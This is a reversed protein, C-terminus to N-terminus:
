GRVADAFVSLAVQDLGNFGEQAVKHGALKNAFHVMLQSELNPHLLLCYLMAAIFTDGAGTTSGM